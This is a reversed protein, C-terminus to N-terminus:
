KTEGKAPLAPPPNDSRQNPSEAEKAENSTAPRPGSEVADNSDPPTGSRRKKDPKRRERQPNSPPVAAPKQGRANALDRKQKELQKKTEALEARAARLEDSDPKSDSESDAGVLADMIPDGPRNKSKRGHVVEGLTTVATTFFNMVPTLHDPPPPPVQRGAEMMRDAAENAFTLSKRALEMTERQMVSMTRMLQEHEQRYARTLVFGEGIERTRMGARPLLAKNKVTQDAM